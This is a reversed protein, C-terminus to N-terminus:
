AQIVVWTGPLGPFVATMRSGRGVAGMAQVLVAPPLPGQGTSGGATADQHDRQHTPSGTM